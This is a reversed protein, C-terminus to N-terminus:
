IESDHSRTTRSNALLLTQGYTILGANEMAGFAVTVPIAAQDLKEYPYPTGFYTELVKFIKPTVAAAYAAEAARGKMALIRLPTKKVGATGGEVVDFPGLAIAVLYSPMPKSEAFRVLKMQEGDDRESVQPTNSFVKLGQPARVSIKWPVKYSPEDFCPFARRASTPEFQTFIYSNGDETQKFLGEVDNTNLAGSFAISLKARGVPLASEFSFGAFNVGGDEIRALRDGIKAEGISLATSNLWVTKTPQLVEIDIAVKGSYRDQQPDLQLDLEYRLPRVDGPLRLKPVESFAAVAFWTLAALRWSIM